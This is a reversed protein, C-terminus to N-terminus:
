GEHRFAQYMEEETVRWVRELSEVARRPDEGVSEVVTRIETAL